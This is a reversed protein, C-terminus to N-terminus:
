LAHCISKAAMVEPAFVLASNLSENVLVSDVDDLEWTIAEGEGGAQLKNGETGANTCIYFQEDM